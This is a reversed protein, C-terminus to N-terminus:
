WAASLCLLSEGYNVRPTLRKTTSMRYKSETWNECSAIYLSVSARCPLHLLSEGGQPPPPNVQAPPAAPARARAAPRAAAARAAAAAPADRRGGRM